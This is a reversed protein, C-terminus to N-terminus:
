KLVETPVPTIPSDIIPPNRRTTKGKLSGIDPGFIHEAAEVDGPTVPCNMLGNSKLAAIFTGTSPRGMTIQLERAQLTRRYDNNTYNKKNDRVMNVVLATETIESTNGQSTDLFHLWSGSQIFNFREGTPKTVVFGDDKASNYEIHYKEKVLKLSLVNAIARPDFWVPGYGPLDGVLNTVRIGANCQIRMKDNVRRINRVLKPNCFIDVTSQSDLLIWHDPINDRSQSFTFMLANVGDGGQPTARNNKSEPDNNKNSNPKYNPCEPTNAYHGMQQCSYCRVNSMDQQQGSQTFSMGDGEVSPAPLDEKRRQLINYAEHVTRPCNDSGELYSNRLHRLSGKHNKNTGRVFWIALEQSRAETRDDENAVERGNQHAVERVLAEDEITISVEDLVEVQVLFLEHYREQSMYRGQYFKYFKEKVDMIADSLKRNEEFTHILSRIIVLLAIRDQNATQYDQHSKLCEQLADTCQGLVLSYLGARFNAFVKMKKRYEKIDIKWIKFAVQNGEPPNEPPMPDVLILSELGEKLDTTNEKYTLEVHAVLEKMTRIYKEPTREGTYDFVHGNMASERGSFLSRKNNEDNWNDRNNRRRNGRGGPSDRSGGGGGGGGAETAQAM